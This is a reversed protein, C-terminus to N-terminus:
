AEIKTQKSKSKKDILAQENKPTVIKTIKKNVLRSAVAIKDGKFDLKNAKCTEKLQSNTYSDMLKIVSKQFDSLPKESPKKKEIKLKESLRYILADRDGKSSVKNKEALIRLEINTKEELNM